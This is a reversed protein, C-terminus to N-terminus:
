KKPQKFMGRFMEITNGVREIVKEPQKSLTQGAAKTVASRFKALNFVPHDFRTRLTFDLIIKGQDNTFLDLSNSFITPKEEKVPPVEYVMDSLQFHCKASLDNSKSKLDAKLNLTAALLKRESIFNGYYPQFHVADLGKLEIYGDMDKLGFDLWGAGNLRGLLKYNIDTVLGSLGYNARLSLPILNAKTLYFNFKDIVTSFGGVSVQRDTFVLKGDTVVIGTALINKKKGKGGFEPLNLKGDESQELSIVPETVTLGDLIIKGAFFGLPNVSFSVEKASFFDGIKLKTIRAGLPPRFYLSEMSSRVKLSREIQGSLIDKGFLFAFLTAALILAGASLLVWIIIKKM